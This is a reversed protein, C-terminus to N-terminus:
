SAPSPRRRQRRQIQARDPRHDLSVRRPDRATIMPHHDRRHRPSTVMGTVGPEEIILDRPQRHLARLGRHGLQHPDRPARDPRDDRPHTGVDVGLHVAEVPQAPDPDILDAVFAPLAVERHDDVMVGAAQDPDRVAVALLHERREEVLEASVPGLEEGM